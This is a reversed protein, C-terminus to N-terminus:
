ENDLELDGEHLANLILAAAVACVPDLDEPWDPERPTLWQEEHADEDLQREIDTDTQPRDSAAMKVKREQAM